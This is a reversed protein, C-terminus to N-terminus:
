PGFVKEGRIWRDSPRPQSFFDRLARALDLSGSQCGMKQCADRLGQVVSMTFVQRHAYYEDRILDPSNLAAECHGADFAHMARCVLPRVPYVACRRDKLLPCPLERRLHASEQKNKGARIKVSRELSAALAQKEEDSFNKEVYHGLLLAEPPTLEVQNHCCFHCGPQCALAQPLRNEAEFRAVLQEAWIIAAQALDLAQAATRGGSVIEMVMAEVRNAIAEDIPAFTNQRSDRASTRHRRKKKKRAAVQKM